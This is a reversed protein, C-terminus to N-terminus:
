LKAIAFLATIFMPIYIYIHTHTHTNTVRDHEVRCDWPRYSVLSHGHFKGSLYVPIPHWEKRKGPSAAWPDFRLRRCASERKSIPIAKKPALM